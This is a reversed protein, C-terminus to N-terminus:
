EPIYDFDFTKLVDLMFDAGSSSQQNPDAAPPMTEAAMDPLPTARAAAPPTQAAAPVSAGLTAGAVTAGKLFSRRGIADQRNHKPM